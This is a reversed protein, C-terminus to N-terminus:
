RTRTYEWRHLRFVEFTYHMGVGRNHTPHGGWGDPHSLGNALGSLANALLKARRIEGPGFQFLPQSAQNAIHNNPERNPLVEAAAATDTEREPAFYAWSPAATGNRDSNQSSDKEISDIGM